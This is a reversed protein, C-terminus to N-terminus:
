APRTHRVAQCPDRRDPGGCQRRALRRSRRRGLSTRDSGYSPLALGSALREDERALDAGLVLRAQGEAKVVAHDLAPGVDPVPELGALERGPEIQLILLAKRDAWALREAACPCSVWARFVNSRRCVSRSRPKVVRAWNSLACCASWVAWALDLGGLGTACRLVLQAVGFEM